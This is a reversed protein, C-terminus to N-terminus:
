DLNRKLLYKRGKKDGIYSLKGKKALKTLVYQAQKGKIKLLKQCQVNTIYDNSSLFSLIKNEEKTIFEEVSELNITSLIFHDKCSFVVPPYANDSLYKNVKQIGTGGDDQGYFEKYLHYINQNRPICIGKDLNNITLGVPIYGPSEIIIKGEYFQVVIPLDKLTYDRHIIANMILEGTAEPILNHEVFFEKLAEIQNFLTLGKIENSEMLSNSDDYHNIKIVAGPFYDNIRNSFCLIGSITPFIKGSERVILKNNELFAYNILVKQGMDSYIKEIFDKDIDEVEAEYCPTTDYNILGSSRELESIILTSAIENVKGIRVYTGTIKDLGKLYYPKLNGPFVLLSFFWKENSVFIRPYISPLPEVLDWVLKKFNEICEFVKKRPMGLLENSEPDIGVILQGGVCNSFACIIQALEARAPLEKSYLLTPGQGQKLTEEFNM